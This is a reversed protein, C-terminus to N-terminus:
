WGNKFHKQSTGSGSNPVINTPDKDQEVEEDTESSDEDSYEESDNEAASHKM